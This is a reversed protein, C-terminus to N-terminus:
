NIVTHKLICHRSILGKWTTTINRSLRWHQASRLKQTPMARAYIGGLLQTKKSDCRDCGKFFPAIQPSLLPSIATVFGSKSDCPSFHASFLSNKTLIQLRNLCHVIICSTIFMKHCIHCRFVIFEQGSVHARVRSLTSYLHFKCNEVSSNDRSCYRTKSAIFCKANIPLEACNVFSVLSMERCVVSKKWFVLSKEWFVVSKKWFVLSMEWSVVSTKRFVPSMNKSVTCRNGFLM